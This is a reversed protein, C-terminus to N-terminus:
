RPQHACGRFFDGPPSRELRPRECATRSSSGLRHELAPLLPASKDTAAGGTLVLSHFDAPAKSHHEGKKSVSGERQGTAAHLRGAAVRWNKQEVSRSRRWVVDLRDLRDQVLMIQAIRRDTGRLEVAHAFRLQHGMM